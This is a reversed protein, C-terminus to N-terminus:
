QGLLRIDTVASAASAFFLQGSEAMEVETSRLQQTDTPLDIHSSEFVSNELCM